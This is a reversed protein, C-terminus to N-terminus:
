SVAVPLHVITLNTLCGFYPFGWHLAVGTLILKRLSPSTGNFLVPPAGQEVFGTGRSLYPCLLQFSSLNPVNLTLLVALLPSRLWGGDMFILLRDWQRSTTAIIALCEAVRGVQEASPYPDLPTGLGMDLEIEVSLTRGGVRGIHRTVAAPKSNYDVWLRSWFAPNHRLYTSWWGFKGCLEFLKQYYAATLFSNDDCYMKFIHEWLEYPLCDRDPRKSYPWYFALMEFTSNSFARTQQVSAMIFERVHKKLWECPEAEWRAVRGDMWLYPFSAPVAEGKREVSHFAVLGVLQAVDVMGVCLAELLHGIGPAHRHPRLQTWRCYADFMGDDSASLDLTRLSLMSQFLTYLHADYGLSGRLTFLRINALLTRWRLVLRLSAPTARVVLERLGPADIRKVVEALFSDDELGVDLVRLMPCRFREPSMVNSASINALRLFRLNVATDFIVGFDEWTVIIPGCGQSLDLSVLSSMSSLSFGIGSLELRRISKCHDGLWIPPSPLNDDMPDIAPLVTFYGDWYNYCLSLDVMASAGRIDVCACVASYVDPHNTFLRFSRWRRVACMVGDLLINAVVVASPLNPQSSTPYPVDQLELSIDLMASSCRLMVFALSEKTVTHDMCITSWFSQNLYIRDKDVKWTSCVSALLGRSRAYGSPDSGCEMLVWKVIETWLELLLIPVRAEVDSKFSANM